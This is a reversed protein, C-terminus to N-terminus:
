KISKKDFNDLNWKMKIFTTLLLRRNFTQLHKENAVKKYFEPRWYLAVVIEILLNKHKLILIPGRSDSEPKSFIFFM